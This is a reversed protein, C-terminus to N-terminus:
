IHILSLGSAVNIFHFVSSCSGHESARVTAPAQQDQAFAKRAPPPELGELGREPYGAMHQSIPQLLQHAEAQQAPDRILSARIASAAGACSSRGYTQDRSPKNPIRRIVPAASGANCVVAHLPPTTGTSLRKTLEAAFARISALCALDLSMAERPRGRGRRLDPPRLAAKTEVPSSLAGSRGM